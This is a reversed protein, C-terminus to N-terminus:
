TAVVVEVVQWGIQPLDQLVKAGVRVHAAAIEEAKAGKKVKVLLRSPHVRLDGGGQIASASAAAALLISVAISAVTRPRPM